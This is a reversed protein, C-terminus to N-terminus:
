GESDDKMVKWNVCWLSVRGKKLVLLWVEQGMVSVTEVGVRHDREEVDFVFRACLHFLADHQNPLTNRRDSNM